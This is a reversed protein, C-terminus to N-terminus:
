VHDKHIQEFIIESAYRHEGDVVFNDTHDPLMEEISIYDFESKLVRTIPRALVASAFDIFLPKKANSIDRDLVKSKVHRRIFVRHPIGQAIRWQNLRLFYAIPDENSLPLPLNEKALWWQKRSVVLDKYMVRPIKICNSDQSSVVLNFIGFRTAFYCPDNSMSFRMILELLKPYLQSIFLATHHIQLPAEGGVKYLMPQSQEAGWRLELDKLQLDSPLKADFDDLWIRNHCLRPRHATNFGFTDYIDYAEALKDAYASTCATLIEPNDSFTFFRSFVRLYGSDTCNLVFKDGIVHGYASFPHESSQPSKDDLYFVDQGRHQWIQEFFSLLKEANSSKQTDQGANKIVHTAIDYFEFISYSLNPNINSRLLNFVNSSIGTDYNGGVYTTIFENVQQGLSAIKETEVDSITPHFTDHYVLGGTKITQYGVSTALVNIEDNINQVIHAMSLHTASTLQQKLTLIKRLSEWPGHLSPAISVLPALIAELEAIIDPSQDNLKPRYLLIGADLWQDIVNDTVAGPSTSDIIREISRWTHNDTLFSQPLQAKVMSTRYPYVEKRDMFTYFVAHQENSIHNASFKFSFLHKHLKIIREYVKLFVSRDFSFKDNIDSTRALSGSVTNSLKSFGISTFSSFPSVKTIARNLYKIITDEDNLQKKNTPEAYSQYRELAGSIDGRTFSIGKQFQENRAYKRIEQRSSSKSKEFLDVLQDKKEMVRAVLLFWKELGPDLDKLDIYQAYIKDIDKNSFIKRKLAILRNRHIDDSSAVSFIRDCTEDKLNKISSELENIDVILQNIETSSMIPDLANLAVNNSRVVIYPLTM